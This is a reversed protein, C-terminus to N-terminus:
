EDDTEQRPEFSRRYRQYAMADRYDQIQGTVHHGRRFLHQHQRDWERWEDRERSEETEWADRPGREIQESM